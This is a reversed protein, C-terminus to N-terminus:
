WLFYNLSRIHVHADRVCFNETPTKFESDSLKSDDIHIAYNQVHIFPAYREISVIYTYKTSHVYIYIGACLNLYTIIIIMRHHYYYSTYQINLKREEQEQEEDKDKVENGNYVYM